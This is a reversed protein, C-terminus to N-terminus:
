AFNVLDDYFFRNSSSRIKCSRSVPVEWSGGVLAKMCAGRACPMQLSRKSLIGSTDVLARKHSFKFNFAAPGSAQSDQPESKTRDQSM